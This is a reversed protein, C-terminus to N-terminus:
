PRRGDTAKKLHPDLFGYLRQLNEDAEFLPDAHGAGELVDFEVSGAGACEALCRALEASQQYPVLNDARGHQILFPPAGEHVYTIPNAMRVKEPVDAIKAGLYRSEPSWAEGHDAPGLRSETLQDDMKLFDTPGFWDVAAQVACSADVPGLAQDDFESRDATLAVMAALNGGASGGCAAFRGPDLFYEGAHRRLWRVAAKLDRVGAPFIAEGSLRYNVSAVAYGLELGRLYPALMPDRKDGMEFAGGHIHLILPFPGDGEDPLYLDLAQASSTAAYRLDLWKRPIHSVDLQPIRFPPGPPM